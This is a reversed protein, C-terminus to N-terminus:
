KKLEVFMKQTNLGLNPMSCILSISLQDQKSIIQLTPYYLSKKSDYFLGLHHLSGIKIKSSVDILSETFCQFMVEKLDPELWFQGTHWIRTIQGAWDMEGWTSSITPVILEEFHEAQKNIDQRPFEVPLCMPGFLSLFTACSYRLWFIIKFYDLSILDGITMQIQPLIVLYVSCREYLWNQWGVQM